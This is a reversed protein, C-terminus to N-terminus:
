YCSIKDLMGSLKENWEKQKKNDTGHITEKDYLLQMQTADKDTKRLMEKLDTRFNDTTFSHKRISDALECAKIATIDFHRQEHALISASNIEKKKWSKSRDAYPTITVKVITLGNQTETGYKMDVGSFTAAAGISLDDPPGRFDDFTLPRRKNYLIQDPDDLSQAIEVQVEVAANKVISNRNQELWKDFEKLSRELNQRILTEIYISADAGTQMFATGSYEVLKNGNIYFAVGMALDAQQKMGTIKESIELQILHLEIAAANTDQVMNENLFRSISSSSGNQLNIQTLKNRIGAHMTGINTTDARDDIVNVIYFRQPKYSIKEQKLKITKIDQAYLCSWSLSYLIISFFLKVKHKKITEPLNFVFVM